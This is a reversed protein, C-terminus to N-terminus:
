ATKNTEAEYGLALVGEADCVRKYSEWDSRDCSKRHPLPREEKIRFTGSMGVIGIFYRGKKRQKLEDYIAPLAKLFAAGRVASKESNSTFALVTTRALAIAAMHPFSKMFMSDSTVVIMSAKGRDYYIWPDRETQHYVDDHITIDLGADRLQKPLHVSGLM